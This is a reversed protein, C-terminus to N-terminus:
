AADIKPVQRFESRVANYTAGCRTMQKPRIRPTSDRSGRISAAEKQDSEVFAAPVRALCSWPFM